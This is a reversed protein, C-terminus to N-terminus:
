KAQQSSTFWIYNTMFSRTLFKCEEWYAVCMCVPDDPWRPHPKDAFAAAVTCPTYLMHMNALHNTTHLIWDFFFNLLNQLVGGSLLSEQGLFLIDESRLKKCQKLIVTEVWNPAFIILLYHKM